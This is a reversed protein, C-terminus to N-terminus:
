RKIDNFYIQNGSAIIPLLSVKCTLPSTHVIGKKEISQYALYLASRCSSTILVYKKGTLKKFYNCLKDEANKCFITKLLDAVSFHPSYYPIM